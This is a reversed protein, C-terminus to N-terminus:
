ETAKIASILMTVSDRTDLDIYNSTSGDSLRHTLDKAWMVLDHIQKKQKTNQEVLERPTLSTEHHVNLAQETIQAFLTAQKPDQTSDFTCVSKGDPGFVQAMFCHGPIGRQEAHEFGETPKAKTTPTNM